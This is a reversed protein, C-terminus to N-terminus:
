GTNKALKPGEKRESVNITLGQGTQLIEQRDTQDLENKGLFIAMQSNNEALKNQYGRLRIRGEARKRKILTGFRRVMTTKAIDLAMAITDLHCNNLAMEEISQMDKDTFTKKPRAM